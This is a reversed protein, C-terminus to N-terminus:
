NEPRVFSFGTMLYINNKEYNNKGSMNLLPQKTKCSIDFLIISPDLLEDTGFSLTKDKMIYFQHSWLYESSAM